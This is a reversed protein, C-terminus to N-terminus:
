CSGWSPGHREVQQQLTDPGPAPADEAVRMSEGQKEREFRDAHRATSEEVARQWKPDRTVALCHVYGTLAELDDASLKAVETKIEDLTM